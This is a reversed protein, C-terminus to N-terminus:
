RKMRTVKRLKRESDRAALIAETEVKNEAVRVLVVELV